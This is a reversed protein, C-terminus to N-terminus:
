DTILCWFAFPTGPAVVDGFHVQNGQEFIECQFTAGCTCVKMINAKAVPM